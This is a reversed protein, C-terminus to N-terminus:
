CHTDMAYYTARWDAQWVCWIAFRRRVVKVLRELWLYSAFVSLVVM